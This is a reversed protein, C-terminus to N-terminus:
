LGFDRIFTELVLFYATIFAFSGGIIIDIDLSVM